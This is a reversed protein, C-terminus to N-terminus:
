ELVDKMVHEFMMRGGRAVSERWRNISSDVGNSISNWLDTLIDTLDYQYGFNWHHFFGFGFPNEGGGLGGAVTPGTPNGDNDYTQEMSIPGVLGGASTGSTPGTNNDYTGSHDYSVGVGTGIAVGMGLGLGTGVELGIHGTDLDIGIGVSVTGSGLVGIGGAGAEIRIVRLGDNDMASVPSNGCYGYWNRGDKIPDRTLFRGTSSDYYRHGLLKLGSDPDQQYGFKGAYGFQSKWAGTSSLEKGFADFVKAAGIVQSASSQVDDNKLGAHFTTKVGGRVEGSPTFSATGDSLVPDTVYVGNRKFSKSGSSDVMGVRTDLGNYTFTNTVMGPKTISTM